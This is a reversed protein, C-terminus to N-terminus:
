RKRRSRRDGVARESGPVYDTVVGNEVIEAGVVDSASLTLVTESEGTRLLRRTILFFRGDLRAGDAEEVIREGGSALLVRVFM